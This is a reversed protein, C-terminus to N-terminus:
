SLNIFVTIVQEIDIPLSGIDPHFNKNMSEVMHGIFTFNSNAKLYVDSPLGRRTVPIVRFRYVM